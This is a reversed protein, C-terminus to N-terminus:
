SKLRKLVYRNVQANGNAMMSFQVAIVSVLEWGADGLENLQSDPSDGIKVTFSTYEWQPVIGGGRESGTPV